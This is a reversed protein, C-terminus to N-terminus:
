NCAASARIATNSARIASSSFGGFVGSLEDSGGDLPWFALAGGVPPFGGRLLRGPKPRASSGLGSRTASNRNAAQGCQM